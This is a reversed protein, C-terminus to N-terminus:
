KPDDRVVAVQNGGAVADWKRLGSGVVGPHGAYGDFGGIVGRGPGHSGLATEIEGQVDLGRGGIPDLDRKAANARSAARQGINGGL